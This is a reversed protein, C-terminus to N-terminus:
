LGALEPELAALSELTNAPRFLDIHPMAAKMGRAVPEYDKWGALPNLWILRRARKKLRAMQVAIAEPEGTDYGDSMIIVVSRSNLVEKAYNQNFVRLCEGIKTGGGFGQAMLNLRDLARARDPDRLADSIRVLRTHFLFADAKLWQGMLGRVFALFLRSYQHMSGSVDLLVVLKVPREPRKRYVLDFLEGGKSANRRITRRLNIERGRRSPVRRRSLRYKMARALKEALREIEATDGSSMIDKLDARELSTQASALLRGSGRDGSAGDGDGLRHVVAGAGPTAHEPLLNKWIKLHKKSLQATSEGTAQTRIASRVNRKFWYADFLEDFRDWNSKDASLMTRLGIRIKRGDPPDVLDLFALADITEAPGVLFGNYRLHAIFGSM